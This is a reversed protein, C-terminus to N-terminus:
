KLKCSIEQLEKEWDANREIGQVIRKSDVTAIKEKSQDMAVFLCFILAALFCRFGLGTNEREKEEQYVSTYSTRYRPHIAPITESNGYRKRTQALLEQRRKETENM